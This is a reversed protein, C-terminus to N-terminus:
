RRRPLPVRDDDSTEAVNGDDQAPLARLGDLVRGLVDPGPATPDALVARAAGAAGAAGSAPDPVTARDLTV